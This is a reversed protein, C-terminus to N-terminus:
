YDLHIQKNDQSVKHISIKKSILLCGDFPKRNM